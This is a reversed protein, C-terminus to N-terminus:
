EWTGIYTVDGVMKVGPAAASFDRDVLDPVPGAAGQETTSPRGPRPQCAVLGLQRM